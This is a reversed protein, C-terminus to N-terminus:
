TSATPLLTVCNLGPSSTNPAHRRSGCAQPTFTQTQWPDNASYAQAGEEVTTRLGSVMVNSCAAETGTAANVARCPRRSVPCICRPCVTKILPAEPPTPVKATCIALDNPAFTVPTQLVLFTSRTRDM